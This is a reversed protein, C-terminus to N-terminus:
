GSAACARSLLQEHEGRCLATLRVEPWSAPGSPEALDARPARPHVEECSVSLAGAELLAESLREGEPGRVELILATLNAREPAKDRRIANKRSRLSKSSTTSISGEGSSGPTWCCNRICHSTPRYGRSS